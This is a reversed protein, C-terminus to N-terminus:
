VVGARLLDHISIAGVLLGQADVVLLATIGHVEMRHAAEAALAQADITRPATTMVASMPTGHPDVQRELARRLDGDTFVGVLRGQADVIATLGLKKHTMELLGGALPTDPRVKPLASGAHM